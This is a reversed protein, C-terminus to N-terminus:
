LTSSNENQKIKNQKLNDIQTVVSQLLDIRNQFNSIMAYIVRKDDDSEKLDIKLLEYNEELLKIQFLADVILEQYEPSEESNLKELETNITQAFFDETTAMEPSINALDRINSKQQFGILLSIMLIISAAISILPKWLKTVSNPKKIINKRRNLKDLFRQEHGSNPEELNFDKNINKFLTDLNDNNM